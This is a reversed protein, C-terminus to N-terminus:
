FMGESADAIANINLGKASYEELKNRITRVSVGLQKATQSKNNGTRKLMLSILRMEMEEITPLPGSM